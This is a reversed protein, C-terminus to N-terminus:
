IVPYDYPKRRPRDLFHNGWPSNTFQEQEPDWQLINGTEGTVESVWRAINLLHTITATRHGIEVHCIPDTRDRICDIWNRFHNTSKPLVVVEPNVLPEEILEPPDATYEGRDITISGHEGIFRAGFWPADGLEISIGNAYRMFVRPENQNGPVFGAEARNISPKFPEGETWIEVPGTDSTNLVWQIQDFGHTGLSTAAHGAFEYYSVWGRVERFSPHYPHPQVPGCFLDWDIDDPIPHGPMGNRQPSAYDAAIVKEIKGIRGNRILMCAEYNQPNSRDQSGTQLVRGYKRVAEVMRRGESITLSMPKECYIDKGAQASHITLLGHWHEPTAITVADIDDRELMERYDRYPTADIEGAVYERKGKDVDVVAAVRIDDYATLLRIIGSGMAGAGIAGIVIRDNAGPRGNAALVGSPLIMPAAVSAVGAALGGKLFSRRAMKKDM